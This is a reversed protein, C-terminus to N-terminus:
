STHVSRPSPVASLHQRRASLFCCTFCSQTAPKSAPIVAVHQVHRQRLTDLLKQRCDDLGAISTANFQKQDLHLGDWKRFLLRSPKM